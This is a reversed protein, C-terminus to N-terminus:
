KLQQQWNGPLQMANKVVANVNPLNSPKEVRSILREKWSTYSWSTESAIRQLFRNINRLPSFLKTYYPQSGSSKKNDYVEMESDWIRNFHACRNRLSKSSNILKELESEAVEYDAAIKEKTPRPLKVYLQALNSFSMIEVAMWIPLYPNRYTNYFHKVFQEQSRSAEESIKALWQDHWNRTKIDNAFNQHNTHAFAGDLEALYYAIKTRASVEVIEIAELTM